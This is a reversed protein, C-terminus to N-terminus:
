IKRRMTEVREFSLGSLSPVPCDACIPIKRWAKLIKKRFQNYRAGFWVDDFSQKFLNGMSYHTDFDNCCPVVSGDTSVVVWEWPWKCQNEELHKKLSQGGTDQYRTYAPHTPLFEVGIQCAEPGSMQVNFTKFRIRDAGLQAALDRFDEMQDQNHKMIIFQLEVLPKSSKRNKKEEALRRVNETVRALRGGRRYRAYAEQTIGDLSIKIEDLDSDILRNPDLFHGNTSIEVDPIGEEKAYEIMQYIDGRLFPEGYNHLFLRILFPKMQDIIRRYQDSPMDLARSTRKGGVPCLPCALNCRRTPEIMAVIPYLFVNPSFPRVHLVHKVINATVEAGRTHIPFVTNRESDEITVFGTFVRNSMEPVAPNLVPETPKPEGHILTMPLENRKDNNSGLTRLHTLFATAHPVSHFSHSLSEDLPDPGSLIVATWDNSVSPAIAESLDGDKSATSPPVSVIEIDRLTGLDVEIPPQYVLRVPCDSCIRRICKVIELFREQVGKEAAKMYISISM